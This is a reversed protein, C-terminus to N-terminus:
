GVSTSNPVSPSPDAVAYACAAAWLVQRVGGHV